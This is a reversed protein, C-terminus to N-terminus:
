ILNNEFLAVPNGLDLDFVMNNVKDAVDKYQSYEVADGNKDGPIINIPKFLNFNVHKDVYVDRSTRIVPGSM